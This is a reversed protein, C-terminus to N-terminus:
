LGDADTLRSQAGVSRESLNPAMQWQERKNTDAASILFMLAKAPM